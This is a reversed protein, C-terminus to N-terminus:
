EAEQRVHEEACAGMAEMNQELAHPGTDVSHVCFGNALFCFFCFGKRGRTEILYGTATQKRSQLTRWPVVTGTSAVACNEQHTNAIRIVGKDLPSFPTHEIIEFVHNRLLYYVIKLNVLSRTKFVSTFGLSIFGKVSLM